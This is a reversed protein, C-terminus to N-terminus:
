EVMGFELDCTPCYHYFGPRNQRRIQTLKSHCRRCYGPEPKDSTRIGSPVLELSTQRARKTSRSRSAGVYALAYKKSVRSTYIAESDIVFKSEGNTVIIFPYEVHLVRFPAGDRAKRRFTETEGSYPNYRQTGDDPEGRKGTIVIYDGPKLNDPHERKM